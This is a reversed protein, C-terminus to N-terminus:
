DYFGADYTCEPTEEDIHYWKSGNELHGLPPEIDSDFEQDEDEFDEYEYRHHPNIDFTGTYPTDPTEENPDRLAYAFCSTINFTCMASLALVGSIVRKFINFKIM